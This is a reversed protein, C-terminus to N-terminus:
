LTFGGGRGMIERGRKQRRTGRREKRRNMNGRLYMLQRAGALRQSIEASNKSDFYIDQAALHAATLLLAATTFSRAQLLASTTFTKPSVTQCM